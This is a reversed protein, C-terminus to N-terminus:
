VHSPGQNHVDMTSIYRKQVCWMGTHIKLVLTVVTPVFPFLLLASETTVSHTQSIWWRDNHPLATVREDELEKDKVSMDIRTDCMRGMRQARHCCCCCCSLLFLIQLPFVNTHVTYKHIFGCYLTPPWHAPTNTPPHFLAQQLLNLSFCSCCRHLCVLNGFGMKLGTHQTKISWDLLM